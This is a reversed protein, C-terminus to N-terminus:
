SKVIEQDYGPYLAGVDQWDIRLREDPDNFPTAYQESGRYSNGGWKRIYYAKNREFNANFVQADVSPRSGSGVHRIHTHPITLRELGALDARRYYDLDEFYIPWFNEDMYGIRELAIPNIACLAFLMDAPQQIAEDYGMGSIMYKDRNAVATEAIRLLDDRTATIDDNAIFAVDAGASYSNYLGENWSKALGRNTGYPYVNVNPATLYIHLCAREVAPIQSHVFIQWHTDSGQLCNSLYLLKDALAYAVITIHIKM